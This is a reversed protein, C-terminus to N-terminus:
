NGTGQHLQTEIEAINIEMPEQSTVEDNNDEINTWTRVSSSKMEPNAEVNTKYGAVLCRSSERLRGRRIATRWETKM